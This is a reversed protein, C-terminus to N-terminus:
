REVPCAGELDFALEFAPLAKLGTAVRASGALRYGITGLGAVLDFLRRDVDAYNMEFGLGLESAEGAPISFSGRESGSAWKRGEGYFAYSLEGLEIPFANPNDIEIGLRLNSTVLVDREIRLSTIRIKPERVIPISGSAAAVAEFATGDPARLRIRAAASFAAEAPGGPGIIGEGLDRLDVVREFAVPIAGGAEIRGAPAAASPAALASEAGEIALGCEASEVILAQPRPNLAVAVLRLLARNQDLLEVPEAALSLTPEPAPAGPRSACGALATGTAAALVATGLVAAAAAWRGRAPLAPKRM